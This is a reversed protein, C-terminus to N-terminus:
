GNRAIERLKANEESSPEKSAWSPPLGNETTLQFKERTRKLRQHVDEAHPRANSDPNFMLRVLQLVEVLFKRGKDDEVRHKDPLEDMFRAVAPKLVYRKTNNPDRAYFSHDESVHKEPQFTTRAKELEKPGEYNLVLFATVELMICALSWVDYRRNPQENEDLPPSYSPTGGVHPLNSSTGSKNVAKLVTQGFDTIKWSDDEEVLINEPKLDFHCGILFHQVTKKGVAIHSSKETSSAQRQLHEGLKHVKFLADTIGIMQKWFADSWINRDRAEHAKFRERNRLYDQLNTKARPFMINFTNGLSYTKIMHVIHDHRLERVLQLATKEHAAQIEDQDNEGTTIEKRAFKTVNM